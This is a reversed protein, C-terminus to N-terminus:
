EGAERWQCWAGCAAEAFARAEDGGIVEVRARGENRPNVWASSCVLEIWLREGSAVTNACWELRDGALLAIAEASNLDWAPLSDWFRIRAAELSPECAIAHQKGDPTLLAYWFPETEIVTWGQADAVRWRLDNM